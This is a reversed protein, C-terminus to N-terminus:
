FFSTTKLKKIGPSESRSILKNIFNSNPQRHIVYRQKSCTPEYITGTLLRGDLVVIEGREYTKVNELAEIGNETVDDNSIVNSKVKMEINEIHKINSIDKLRIGETNVRNLEVRSNEAVRMGAASDENTIRCVRVSRFVKEVPKQEKYNPSIQEKNDIDKERRRKITNTNDFTDTKTLNGSTVVNSRNIIKIDDISGNSVSLAPMPNGKLNKSPERNPDGDYMEAESLESDDSDSIPMPIRFIEPSKTRELWAAVADTIPHNSLKSTTDTDRDDANENDVNDSNNESKLKAKSREEEDDDSQRESRSEIRAVSNKNDSEIQDSVAVAAASGEIILKQHKYNENKEDAANNESIELNDLQDNSAIDINHEHPRLHDNIKSSDENDSKLDTDLDPGPTPERVFKLGKASYKRRPPAIPTGSSIPPPTTSASESRAISSEYSGPLRNIDANIPTTTENIEPSTPRSSPKALLSQSKANDFDSPQKADKSPSPSRDTEQLSDKAAARSTTDNRQPNRTERKNRAPKKVDMAKGKGKKVNKNGGKKNNSTENDPKKNVSLQSSNSENTELFKVNNTNKGNLELSEKGNKDVSNNANKNDVEEGESSLLNGNNKSLIESIVGNTRDVTGEKEVGNTIEPKDNVEKVSVSDAIIPKDEDKLVIDTEDHILNKTELEGQIIEGNRVSQPTEGPNSVVTEPETLDSIREDIENTEKVRENDFTNEDLKDKLNANVNNTPTEGDSQVIRAENETETKESNNEEFEESPEVLPTDVEESDPVADTADPLVSLRTRFQFEQVEPNLPRSTIVDNTAGATTSNASWSPQSWNSGSEWESSYEEEEDETNGQILM